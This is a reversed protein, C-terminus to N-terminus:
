GFNKVGIKKEIPFKKNFIRKFWCNKKVLMKKWWFKKQCFTMKKSYLKQFKWFSAIPKSMLAVWDQILKVGTTGRTSTKKRLGLLVSAYKM